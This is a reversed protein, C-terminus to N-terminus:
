QPAAGGSPKAATEAPVVIGAGGDVTVRQGTRLRRTADGTGVVAPIGFERAILSAHAALTGGDTVIAAARSFLPTWGPATARAVIIEGEQFNDFEEPGSMVRVIGTARGTSAPHGVVAGEPLNHSTRAAEVARAVPDGIIRPSAGLTLPAALSRQQQWTQRRSNVVSRYNMVPATAEDRMLFHIDAAQDIAQAAVLREGLRRACSRLVPWGLTLNLAQEERLVAYHQAVGLLVNFQALRGPHDKLANRAAAEAMARQTGAAASMTTAPRPEQRNSGSVAEGATPHYWDLSYVAHPVHATAIEGLGSLLVQHGSEGAATGHLPGALHKQWFRALASEMKWASGGVISLSWLYIGAQNCLSDVLEVVRAPTASDVEQESNRVLERYEPLLENRWKLELDHLVARHAAAPNHSVRFLANFLLWPARGRSKLIVGALVRPSPVPPANFYWGNVSAYRFPVQVGADAKMGDLYGAEIRPLLWDEFLPTMPDPLWEGLRFNRAWLGKGPAVWDVPEPLATMPRAQLLFLVGDTGIAWEIDQPVGARDAVRRALGAVELAQAANLTGTRRNCIATRARVTWEEGIASGAVLAEGLGQVATIITEGRSGTLPNATFAVGAALPQVMQQVLVAMGPKASPTSQGPGELATQYAAVRGHAASALCRTIGDVLDDRKVNLFTEYLGAYSAGALDEAAASSRIAFPGPGTRDAAAALEDALRPGLRELADATVVFGAPVRFGNAALENLTAAKSGLLAPEAAIEGLPPFANLVGM